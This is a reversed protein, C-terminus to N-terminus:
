PILLYLGQYLECSARDSCPALLQGTSFCFENELCIDDKTNVVRWFSLYKVSVSSVTFGRRVPVPAHSPPRTRPHGHGGKQLGKKILCGVVPPSFSMVIQRTSESQCLTVGM